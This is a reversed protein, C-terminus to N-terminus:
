ASVLRLERGTFAALAAAQDEVEARAPAPLSRALGLSVTTTRGADKRKWWGVDRRGHVVVGGGAEAFSSHGTGWPHDPLRPLNSGPYTLYAEDFVPLLFAGEAPDPGAADAGYWHDVGDVEITALADGLDAVAARVERQTLTCWRALQAASAPGHGTFFRLVLERVADDRDKAPAPAVREDLLTYTHQGNVHPGSCVLGELEAIGIVQGLREGALDDRGVAAAVQRRTLPTDALTALLRDVERRLVAPDGLGLRRTRGAMSRLVKPGTLDLLWRVDEVSVYHWTPRLVHTRVVHGDDVAARVAADDPGGTRLSLSWRALPADQAQVALLARVAQPVDAFGPGTLGQARARRALVDDLVEPGM